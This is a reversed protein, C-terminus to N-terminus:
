PRILGYINSKLWLYRDTVMLVFLKSWIKFISQIISMKKVSFINELYYNFYLRPRTWGWSTRHYLFLDFYFFFLSPSMELIWIEEQCLIEQRSYSYKWNLTRNWMRPSMKSAKQMIFYILYLFIHDPKWILFYKLKEHKRSLSFRPTTHQNSEHM